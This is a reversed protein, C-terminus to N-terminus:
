VWNQERCAGPFVHSHLSKGGLGLNSMSEADKGDMMQVCYMLTVKFSSTRIEDGVFLILEM